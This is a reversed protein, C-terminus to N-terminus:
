ALIEEAEYVAWAPLSLTQVHDPYGPWRGTARCQDWLDLAHANLDAGLREAQADLEFVAVDYPATKEQVVFCFAPDAYGLARLADRYWEAQCHYKHRGVAAAFGSTSADTATKYDVAVMRGTRTPGDPLWDFRAKREGWFVSVEPRGPQGLLAAAAPHDRVLAAMAQATGMGEGLIPLGGREWTEDRTARAAKPRWSDADVVVVDRSVDGLVLAHVVSGFDVADTHEEVGEGHRFHSPTRLIRRAGTSSLEPRARYVQAPMDYVVEVEAGM